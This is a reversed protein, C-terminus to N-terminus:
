VVESMWLSQAQDTSWNEGTWNASKEGKIKVKYQLGKNNGQLQFLWLPTWLSCGPLLHLLQFRERFSGRDNLHGTIRTPPSSTHKNKLNICLPFDSHFLPHAEGM